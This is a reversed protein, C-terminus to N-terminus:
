TELDFNALPNRCGLSYPDAYDVYSTTAVNRNGTSFFDTSFLFDTMLRRVFWDYQVRTSAPLLPRMWANDLLVLVSQLRRGQLHPNARLFSGGFQELVEDSMNLGPLQARVYRAVTAEHSTAAVRGAIGLPPVLVAAGGAALLTRRSIKAM